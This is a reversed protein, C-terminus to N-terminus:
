ESNWLQVISSVMQYAVLLKAAVYCFLLIVSIYFCLANLTILTGNSTFAVTDSTGYLMWDLVCGCLSVLIWIKTCHQQFCNDLYQIFYM